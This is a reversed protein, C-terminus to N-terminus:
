TEKENSRALMQIVSTAIMLEEDTHMVRVTVQSTQTSIVAENAANNKQDINIGLFELEACVRARILAAHEGIGGSFVLTDLGGLAASYAGICKKIQYCFLDVAEAARIDTEQQEILDRMDSSTESVGLLGCEHNILHNFQQASLNESQMIYWAVGPDLDGSRTGMPVGGAPTFGMSTDISQGNRVATLSAGNGLHALIVRGPAVQTGATRELQQMLYSYSLGHFGYRHIGTVDFRRPIPLLKAVRPLGQHFATDFCAVQPLQPYHQRFKEILEIEAPLHQPDYSSIRHLEDLVSQSIFQSETYRMGHVVRHGVASVTSFDIRQAFWDLLFDVASSYDSASINRSIQQSQNKEAFSLTTAPLGIRDIKGALIRQMPEGAQYLAFKISSSGGNITLM